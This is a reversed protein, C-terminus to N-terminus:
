EFLNGAYITNVYKKIHPNYQFGNKRFINNQELLSLLKIFEELGKSTLIDYEIATNEWELFLKNLMNQLDYWWQDLVSNLYSTEDNYEISDYFM